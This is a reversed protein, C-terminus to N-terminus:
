CPAVERAVRGPARLVGARKLVSLVRKKCTKFEKSIVISSKGARYAELVVADSIAPKRPVIGGDGGATANTLDNRVSRIHHIFFREAANVSELDNYRCMESIRPRQGQSLVKRIWNARHTRDAWTAGDMELADRVHRALREKLDQKTKGVYRISNTIPDILIYLAYVKM